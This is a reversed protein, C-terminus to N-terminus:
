LFLLSSTQRQLISRSSYRRNTWYQERALDNGDETERRGAQSSLQRQVWSMRESLTEHHQMTVVSFVASDTTGQMLM